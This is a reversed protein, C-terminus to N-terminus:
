KFLWVFLKSALHYKLSDDWRGFMLRCPSCTHGQIEPSDSWTVLPVGQEVGSPECLQLSGLLTTISIHYAIM